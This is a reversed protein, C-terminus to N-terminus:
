AEDPIPVAPSDDGEAVEKLERWAVSDYLHLDDNYKMLRWRPQGNREGLRWHTISTNYTYHAVQTQSFTNLGFFFPFTGDIVGGHCVIVVTKGAYTRIIRDLATGVRLMFQGWNESGPGLPRFPDGDFDPKGYREIFEEESLGDAEPGVRIEQLEEDWQIPLGLAPAIIEATQKARPLTSALLVDAAIERTTALRHHLRTAQERGLPTLGADGRMGAVVHTKVAMAEGHRILYLNTTPEM